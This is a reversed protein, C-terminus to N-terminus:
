PKFNFYAQQGRDKSYFYATPYPPLTVPTPWADQTVIGETAGAM